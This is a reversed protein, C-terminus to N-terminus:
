IDLKNMKDLISQIRIKTKDKSNKLNDLEVKLDAISKDQERIKGMLLDREDKLSSLKAILAGVKEELVKFQDTEEQHEM